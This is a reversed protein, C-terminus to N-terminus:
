KATIVIQLVFAAAFCAFGVYAIDRGTWAKYLFIIVAAAFLITAGINLHHEM